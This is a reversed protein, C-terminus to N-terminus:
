PDMKDDMKRQKKACEERALVNPPPAPWAEFLHNVRGASGAPSVQVCSRLTFWWTTCVENSASAACVECMCVGWMCVLGTIEFGLPAGSGGEVAVDTATGSGSASGDLSTAGAVSAQPAVASAAPAVAAAETAEVATVMDDQVMEGNAEEVTEEVSSVQHAQEKALRLFYKQQYSTM